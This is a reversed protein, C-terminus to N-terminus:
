TTYTIRTGYIEDNTDLTTTAIYYAFTSNDITPSTISTSETNFNTAGVLEGQVGTSLTNRFLFFQEDSINGYVIIGTIVAGNPLNVECIFNVSAQSSKAVGAQLDVDKVDPTYAIFQSGPASWYNTGTTATATERVDDQGFLGGPLDLVM